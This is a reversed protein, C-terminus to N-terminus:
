DSECVLGAVVRETPNGADDYLIVHIAFMQDYTPCTLRFCIGNDDGAGGTRARHCQEESGEVQVCLNRRAAYLSTPLDLADPTNTTACFRFQTGPTDPDLDTSERITTGSLPSVSDIDPPITDVLYAAEHSVGWKGNTGRCHASVVHSGEGDLTIGPFVAEGNEVLALGVNNEGDVTLTVLEGDEASSEVTFSVQYPEDRGSTRDGGDEAMVGNLERHVQDVSPSAITCSPPGECQTRVTAEGDCGEPGGVRVLLRMWARPNLEVNEFVLVAGEVYATGVRGDEVYLRGETGEPANTAARVDVQVGNSCVRDEDDNDGLTEGDAPYLLTAANCIATLGPVESYDETGEEGDGCASTTVLLAGSVSLVTLLRQV